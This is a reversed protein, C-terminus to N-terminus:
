RPEVQVSTPDFGPGRPAPLVMVVFLERVIAQRRDLPLADWAERDLGRLGNLVHSQRASALAQELEDVERDIPQVAEEADALSFVDSRALERMVTARRNKLKAIRKTVDMGTAIAAAARADMEDWLRPDELRGLTLGIVYEDLLPGNRLVGTPCKPKSCGYSHGQQPRQRRMKLTHGSPCVAVGSLLHRRPRPAREYKVARRELVDRLVDWDDRSIIPEWQADYRVDKLEVYGANRPRLLMRKLSGATWRGGLPGPIGRENLDRALKSVSEGELVRRACEAIVAAEESVVTARDAAFGYPRLGGSEGRGEHRATDLLADSRRASLRDSERCAANVEGRLRYRDEYNDLDYRSNPSALRIGKSESARLLYELDWPQRMLRDGHYTIVIDCQGAEIGLVMRDWDARKRDRQWASRNNDKFVDVVTAGLDDALKRCIREQRDVKTQDDMKALSIRAYIFARPKM